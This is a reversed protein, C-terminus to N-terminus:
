QIESYSRLPALISTLLLWLLMLKSPFLERDTVSELCSRCMRAARKMTEQRTPHEKPLQHSGAFAVVFTSNQKGLQQYHCILVRSDLGNLLPKTISIRKSAKGVRAPRNSHAPKPFIMPRATQSDSKQCEAALQSRQSDGSGCVSSGYMATTYGM